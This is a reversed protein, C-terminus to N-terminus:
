AVPLQVDREVSEHDRQDDDATRILELRIPIKELAPGWIAPTFKRENKPKM